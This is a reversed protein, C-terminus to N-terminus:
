QPTLKLLLRSASIASHAEFSIYGSPPQLGLSTVQWEHENYSIQSESFQSSFGEYLSTEQAPLM